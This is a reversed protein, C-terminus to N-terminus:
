DSLIIQRFFQCGRLKYLTVSSPLVEEKKILFAAIFAAV